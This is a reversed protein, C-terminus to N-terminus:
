TAPILREPVYETGPTCERTTYFSRTGDDAHGAMGYIITESEATSNLSFMVYNIPHKQAHGSAAFLGYYDQATAERLVEGTAEDVLWLWIGKPNSFNYGSPADAFKIGPAPTSSIKNTPIMLDNFQLNLRIFDGPVLKEGPTFAYDSLENSTPDKGPLLGTKLNVDKNVSTDAEGETKAPIAIEIIYSPWYQPETGGGNPDYTQGNKYGTLSLDSAGACGPLKPNRVAFKIEEYHTSRGTGIGSSRPLSFKAVGFADVGVRMDSWSPATVTQAFVYGIEVADNLWADDGNLTMYATSRGILTKDSVEILLYVYDGDWLVYTDADLTPIARNGGHAIDANTTNEEDAQQQKNTPLYAANAYVADKVGDVQITGAAVKGITGDAAGYSATFSCDGKINKVSSNSGAPAIWEKFFKGKIVPVVITEKTISSGEKVQITQYESGDAHNFTVNFMKKARCVSTVTMDKKVKNVADDAEGDGDSDWGIIVYDAFAQLDDLLSNRAKGDYKIRSQKKETLGTALEPMPNGQPDVYKFTVTFTGIPDEPDEPEVPDEPNGGGTTGGDTTGGDTKGDDEDDCAVFISVAMILVLVLAMIKLLTKM